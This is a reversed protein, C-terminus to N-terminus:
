EAPEAAAVALEDAEDLHAVTALRLAHPWGLPTASDATGDDFLQEPLYGCDRVLSGGPLIEALLDRSRRYADDARADDCADLLSGLEAAANAGWATSVTWVKENGQGHQRWDDGEFRVLGRIADSEHELGDLTTEVHTVLRDVTEDDLDTIEAYERMAAPLALSGSDLREDLEGEHERLAYFEGTWLRDLGDAVRDAQARAHDRLDTSVPARAVAAYAHLFTAATHVFRGQMNEWANQCAVPLGDAELTDDLSDVAAEITAEIAEPDEPDDTRLYTALFGAVSGSQDAQYDTDDGDELRANAWGPALTEDGPWVRHPWSGDDLQTRRYFEASRQHWGDLDVGLVESGELLFRSIEADDRFWTYGYGGSSVYFPDFDPGAIRAGNEASLLSVVRLDDVVTERHPATEPVRWERQDRAAAVLTETDDYESAASEVTSLADARATEGREAVLTVLTVSGNEFPATLHAGGTLVTDEYREEDATRPFEVPDDAVLEDFREPIQGYADFDTSAGVYDHERRHYAEVAGDHVLLSTQGERGDPAFRVYANLDVAEPADGVLEFRTVHTRGVTLDQQRVQWDGQEHVTEVVGTDDHYRQSAGGDFWGDGVGFRSSDIGSLGSLPYSYDQLSGDDDVHVLRDGDGAFVGTTSRLEGPFKRDDERHRKYDNLSTRLTM